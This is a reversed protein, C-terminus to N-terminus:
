AEKAHMRYAGLHTTGPVSHRDAGHDPTLRRGGLRGLGASRCRLWADLSRVSPGKTRKASVLQRLLGCRQLRGRGQEEWLALWESLRWVTLQLRESRWAGRTLRHSRNRYTPQSPVMAHGGLNGSCTARGPFFFMLNSPPRTAELCQDVRACRAPLHCAGTDEQGTTSTGPRSSNIEAFRVGKHPMRTLTHLPSTSFVCGPAHASEVVWQDGAAPMGAVCVSSHGCGGQCFPRPHIRFRVFSPLPPCPM